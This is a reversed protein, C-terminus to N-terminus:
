KASSLLSFDAGQFPDLKSSFGADFMCFIPFQGALIALILGHSRANEVEVVCAFGSTM